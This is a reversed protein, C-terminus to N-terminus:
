CQLGTQVVIPSVAGGVGDADNNDVPESNTESSIHYLKFESTWDDTYVNTTADAATCCKCQQDNRYVFYGLGDDCESTALILDACEELSVFGLELESGEPFNNVCM